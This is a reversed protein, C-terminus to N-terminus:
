LGAMLRGPNFVGEPDFAAKLRRHLALLPPPLVTFPERPAGDPRWWPQAHGGVALAADRVLAGPARTLLWRQAGGWEILLDDGPLPLPPTTPPVSLRWLAAGDRVAKRAHEFFPSHQDRLGRWLADGTDAPLTEGGLEAHAAQVAARAGSLRLVLVGNRWASGALPLPRGAWLNLQQIADAQDIEMRLLLTAPPRPLVKLSVECVLGLIGFSGALLRAVDYGAVNKMVRGGFALLEGRGNLVVAGLLHDRVSGSTPRAPGSLGAAVMGGVTGRGNFRPPEFALCQGHQALAAELETIPTGARVTVVLESPEHLAIGSLTTTELPEGDLADGLFDKSGHGVIRLPAKTERARAIRAQLAQVVQDDQLRDM